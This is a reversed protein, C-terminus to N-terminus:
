EKGVIVYSNKYLLDNNREVLWWEKKWRVVNRGQSDTHLMRVGCQELNDGTRVSVWKGTSRM